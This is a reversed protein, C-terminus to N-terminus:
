ATAPRLNLPAAVSASQSQREMRLEAQTVGSVITLGRSEVVFPEALGIIHDRADGEQTIWLWGDISHIQVPLCPEFSAVAGSALQLRSVQDEDPSLRDVRPEFTSNM